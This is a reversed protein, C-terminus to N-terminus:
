FLTNIKLSGLRPNCSLSMEHITFHCSCLPGYEDITKNGHDLWVAIRHYPVFKPDEPERSQYHEYGLWVIIPNKAVLAEAYIQDRIERPFDLFTKTPPMRLNEPSSIESIIESM